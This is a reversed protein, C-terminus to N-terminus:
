PEQQADFAAYAAAREAEIKRGLLYASAWLVAFLGGLFYMTAVLLGLAIAAGQILWGLAYGWEKRLMGAVLVCAVALGLGIPLATSPAVDAVSIMVPTSLALTVAELTLVAACMARRPSRDRDSM